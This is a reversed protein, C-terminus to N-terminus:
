ERRGEDLLERISTSGLSHHRSEAMIEAAAAAADERARIHNAQRRIILDGDQIEVDVKEGDMLGTVRAVDMPVRIALNKGWKGIISHSM